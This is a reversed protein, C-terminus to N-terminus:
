KKPAAAEEAKAKARKERVGVLRADSRADRLKRYAGGEEGKGMESRQVEGIAAELAVNKIPLGHGLKRVM